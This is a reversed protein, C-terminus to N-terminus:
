KRRWGQVVNIVIFGALLWLVFAMEFVGSWKTFSAEDRVVWVLGGLGYVTCSLALFWTTIM